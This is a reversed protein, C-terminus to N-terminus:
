ILLAQGSKSLKFLLGNVQQGNFQFSWQPILPTRCLPPRFFIMKASTIYDPEGVWKSSSMWPLQPVQSVWATLRVAKECNKKNIIERNFICIRLTHYNHRSPLHQAIILIQFICWRCHADRRPALNGGRALSVEAGPWSSWCHRSSLSLGGCGLGSLFIVLSQITCKFIFKHIINCKAIYNKLDSIDQGRGGKQFKESFEGTKTPRTYAAASRRFHSLCKLCAGVARM